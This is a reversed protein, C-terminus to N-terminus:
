KTEEKRDRRSTIFLWALGAASSILMTILFYILLSEGTQPADSGPVALEPIEVPAPDGPVPLNPIEVPAPDGPVPSNPIIIDDDGEDGDDDGEDDDSELLNNTVTLINDENLLSEEDEGTFLGTIWNFFVQILNNDQDAIETTVAVGDEKELDVKVTWATSGLQYGAPAKTERLTLTLTGAEAAAVLLAEPIEVNVFGNEDTVFVLDSGNENKLAVGNEDYLKFEAGALPESTEADIKYIGFGAGHVNEKEFPVNVVTLRNNEAGTISISHHTTTLWVKESGEGSWGSSTGSGVTITWVTDVGVHNKPARTEKMTYTGVALDDTSITINGDDGTTFTKVVVDNEGYVTFEADALPAPSPLVGNTKHITVSAAGGDNGNTTRTNEIGFVGAPAEVVDEEDTLEEDDNFIKTIWSWAREIINQESPEGIVVIEISNENTEKNPTVTITWPGAAAYGAPVTETLTYVGADLNPFFALGHENTTAEIAEFDSDDNKTLTFKVGEMVSDDYSDTKRIVLLAPTPKNDLYSYYTNTIVTGDNSVVAKWYGDADTEDTGGVFLKGESDLADGDIATEVVSYDIAQQGTTHTPLNAFTYTWTGNQDATAVLDTAAPNALSTGPAYLRYTEGAMTFTIYDPLAVGEPVNWAKTVTVVKTDRVYPNIIAVSNSGDVIVTNGLGTVTGLTYGTIGTNSESVTYVNGVRLSAITWTYPNTTTPGIENAGPNSLVLKFSEGPDAVNTVTIAFGNPLNGDNGSFTKTVTLDLQPTETFFTNGWNVTTSSNLTGSANTAGNSTYNAKANETVAYSTGEPIGTIMGSGNATMTLTYVGDGIYSNGSRATTDNGIQVNFTFEDGANPQTYSAPNVTVAKTVTLSVRVRDYTNIIAVSNSGNVIATNGLGTATGLVYGTVGPNNESVAYTDGVKLGPITWTYPNITTPGIENADPTGLVLKFSEGPDAINTVTIAFGSPLNGDLGVFAKTVTLSAIPRVDCFTNKWQITVTTGSTITGSANGPTNYTYNTKANETVSYSKGAPIGTITAYEGGKIIVTYVGDGVYVSGTKAESGEGIQVQFTFEDAAPASQSWSNRDVEVLKKIKLDGTPPVTYDNVFEVTAPSVTVKGAKQSVVFKTSDSGETADTVTKIRPSGYNFETITYEGVPLGEVSWYYTTNGNSESPSGVPADNAFTLPNGVANGAGNTIVIKFDPFATEVEVRTMGKFTKTVVPSGKLEWKAESESTGHVYFDVGSLNGNYGVKQSNYENCHVIAAEIIDRGSFTVTLPMAAGGGDPKFTVKAVISAINSMPVSTFRSNDYFEKQGDITRSNSYGTRVIPSGSIRNVTCSAVATITGTLKYPTGYGLIVTPDAQDVFVPTVWLSANAMRIDIHTIGGELDQYANENSLVHIYITESSNSWSSNNGSSQYNHTILVKGVAKGTVTATNGDGAVTARNTNSSTWTHNRTYTSNNGSDNNNRNGRLGLTGGIVVAPVKVDETFLSGSDAKKASGAVAYITFHDTDFSAAAAGITTAAMEEAASMDDEVYFVQLEEAEGTDVDVLDFTVSVEGNPQIVEGDFWLTIDFAQLYVIETEVTHELVHQIEEAYTIPVIVVETGAPLVGEFANISILVGDVIESYFFDPMEVPAKEEKLAEEEKPEEEEEEEVPEGDEPEGEEEALEEEAPEQEDEEAPEEESDEIITETEGEYTEESGDEIGDTAMVTTLGTCSLMMCLALFVALMKKLSKSM